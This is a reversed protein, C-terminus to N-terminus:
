FKALILYSTDSKEKWWFTYLYAFIYLLIIHLFHADVLAISLVRFFPLVHAIDEIGGPKKRPAIEFDNYPPIAWSSFPLKAPLPFLSQIM